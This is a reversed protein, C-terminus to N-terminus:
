IGPISYKSAFAKVEEGIQKIEEDSDLAPLFDKLQKGSSAQIRKSIAIARLLFQAIIEMEPEKMGRTTMAPTGLRIGGPNIASKDGVLSNKNTTIHMKDLVKDVKAGTLDHPRVDWMLLHNDTGDTIFKEGHKHLAQYLAQANSIVQKSYNRFDDSAVEKLQVALAAINTNHPGGQLMPFVAFNIAEEYKRRFFIMGSRPGRLSKHTTTTVIDAYEFPSSLLKSAILGSTHAIDAMLYAGVKDCIERFRKYDMDRPYGSAGCIIMKPKFEEASKELADYDIIGTEENVFYPKSEFYVSSASIKKTDTQHGHTLHGGHALSLGMLKDGPQMLATYVAFNAPSGSLPQVNVGWEEPNAGFAELARKQCLSEVQDIYENGGYYRKGPYGESYKNTLCSGLAEMVAKSTFNESAILEIGEYQRRKENQIMQFIEPDKDKLALDAVPLKQTAEVM